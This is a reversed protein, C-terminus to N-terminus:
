PTESAELETWGVPFGMLMECFNPNLYIADSKGRRLAQILTMSHKNSGNWETSKLNMVWTDSKVPTPLLELGKETTFRELSQLGYVAGDLMLGWTPFTGSFEELSGDMKAQYFGGCMKLLSGDPGFKVLLEDCKRGSIVSTLLRKVNEQKATRSALSGGRYVPSPKEELGDIFTMQQYTMYTKGGKFM